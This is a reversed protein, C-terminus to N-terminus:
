TFLVTMCFLATANVVDDRFCRRAFAVGDGDGHCSARRTGKYGAVVGGLGAVTIIIAKPVIGADEQIYRLLDGSHARALGLKDQM